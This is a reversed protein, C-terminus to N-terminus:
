CSRARRTLLGAFSVRGGAWHRRCFQTQAKWLGQGYPDREKGQYISWLGVGRIEARNFWSTTPCEDM